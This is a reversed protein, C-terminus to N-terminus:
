IDTIRQEMFEAVDRDFPCGTACLSGIVKRQDEKSKNQNMKFCAEVSDMAVSFVVIGSLLAMYREDTRDLVWPEGSSENEGILRDLFQLM